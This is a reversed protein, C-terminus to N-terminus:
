INRVSVVFKCWNQKGALLKICWDSPECLIVHWRQYKSKKLANRAHRIWNVVSAIIRFQRDIIRFCDYCHYSSVVEIHTDTQM